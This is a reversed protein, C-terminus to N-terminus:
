IRKFGNELVNRFYNVLKLRDDPHIYDLVVSTKYHTEPMEDGTGVIRWFGKSIYAVDTRTNWDILGEQAIEMALNLRRESKETELQYRRFQSVMYLLFILLFIGIIVTVILIYYITTESDKLRGLIVDKSIDVGAVGVVKGDSDYIPAYGSMYEGWQDSYFEKKVSPGTYGEFAEAPAEEYVHGILPFTFDNRGYESNVVFELYEGDATKRLVYVYRISASDKQLAWLRDRIEIFDLSSEDGPKLNELVDGDIQTSIIVAYDKLEDWTREIVLNENHSALTLVGVAQVVLLIFISIAILVVIGTSKQDM